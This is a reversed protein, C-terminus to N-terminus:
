GAVLKIWGRLWLIGPSTRRSSSLMRLHITSIHMHCRDVRLGVILCMRLADFCELVLAMVQRSVSIILKTVICTLKVGSLKELKDISDM